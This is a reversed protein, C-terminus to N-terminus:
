VGEEKSNEQEALEKKIESHEGGAEPNDDLYRSFMLADEHLMTEKILRDYLLGLFFGVVSFIVMAALSMLWVDMINSGRLLGAVNVITFALIAFVITVRPAM